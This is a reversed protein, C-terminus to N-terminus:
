WKQLNCFTINRGKVQSGTFIYDPYQEILNLQTSWSRAIKRKTEDYPWLWATDIYTYLIFHIYIDL